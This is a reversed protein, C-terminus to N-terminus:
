LQEIIPRSPVEFSMPVSVATRDRGNSPVIWSTRGGTPALHGDLSLPGGAACARIEKSARLPSRTESARHYGAVTVTFRRSTRPAEIVPWAPRHWAIAATRAIHRRLPTSTMQREGPTLPGYVPYIRRPCGHGRKELRYHRVRTTLNSARRTPVTTVKILQPPGGESIRWRPRADGPQGCRGRREHRGPDRSALEDRHHAHPAM